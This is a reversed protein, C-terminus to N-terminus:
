NMKFVRFTDCSLQSHFTSTSPRKNSVNRKSDQLPPCSPLDAKHGAKVTFTERRTNSGKPAPDSNEDIPVFLFGGHQAQSESPIPSLALFEKTLDGSDAMATGIAPRDILGHFQFSGKEQWQFCYVSQNIKNEEQSCTDFVSEFLKFKRAFQRTRQLQCPFMSRPDIPTATYSALQLDLDRTDGVIPSRASRVDAHVTGYVM